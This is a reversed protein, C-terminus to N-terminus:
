FSKPQFRGGSLNLINFNEHDFHLLSLSTEVNRMLKAKENTSDNVRM